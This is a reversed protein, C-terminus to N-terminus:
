RSRPSPMQGTERAWAHLLVVAWGRYPRWADTLPELEEDSTADSVEYVTRVIRRTVPDWPYGDALGAGRYLIGNAFFPGIGSITQLEELAEPEPLGRLHGRDLLGDLAAQAVGHLRDVKAASVGEIAELRLLDRPGPFAHFTEGAVEIPTGHRLAVGARIRRSQEVRIRHGITFAAAAEYPSHFMSPRLHRYHAQIEGLRPDRAGVAPWGGGDEDLSMAALAQARARGPDGAGHVAGDLTGDPRARLTVVASGTWGEVPFAMAVAAPDGALVPWPNFHRNQHALDFPGHPRVSFTEVASASM